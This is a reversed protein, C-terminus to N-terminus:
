EELYSQFNYAKALLDWRSLETVLKLTCRCMCMHMYIYILKM